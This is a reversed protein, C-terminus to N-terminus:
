VAKTARAAKKMALGALTLPLFLIIVPLALYFAAARAINKAFGLLMADPALYPSIDFAVRSAIVLAVSALVILASPYLLGGGLWSVKRKWPASIILLFALYLAFLGGAAYKLYRGLAAATMVRRLAAAASGELAPPQMRIVGDDLSLGAKRLFRGAMYEGLATDSMRFLALLFARNRIDPARRIEDVFVQSLLHRRGGSADDVWLSITVPPLRLTGNEQEGGGSRLFDLQKEIERKVAGDILKENLLPALRPALAALDGTIRSSFAARHRDIIRAAERNKDDLESQADEMKDRADDYESEAREIARGNQERYEEIERLRSRLHAIEAERREEFAKEDPVAATAGTWSAGRAEALKRELDAYEATRNAREYHARARDLTNRTTAAATVYTDLAVDRDIEERAARDVSANKGEVFANLLYSGKLVETYFFSNTLVAHIVAGLAVLTIVIMAVTSVAVGISRGASTGGGEM